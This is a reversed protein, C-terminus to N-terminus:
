PESPHSYLPPENGAAETPREWQTKKSGKKYYYTRGDETTKQRWGDPLPANLAADEYGPAPTTPREWQTAKSGRMYYYTRGDPTTKQKWGAPLAAPYSVTVPTACSSAVLPPLKQGRPSAIATPPNHLPALSPLAAAEPRVTPDHVSPSMTKPQPLPTLLETFGTATAPPALQQEEPQEGPHEEGFDVRRRGGSATMETEGEETSLHGYPQPQVANKKRIGRLPLARRPLVGEPQAKAKRKPISTSTGVAALRKRRIRCFIYLFLVTGGVVGAIIGGVPVSTADPPPPPMAPALLVMTVVAPETLELTLGSLLSSAAIVAALFTPADNVAIVVESARAMVSHDELSVTVAAVSADSPDSTARVYREPVSLASGVSSALAELELDTWEEASTQLMRLSPLVTQHVSARELLRRGSSAAKRIKFSIVEIAGPVAPPPPPSPPASPLPPSPSPSPPPPSPSPPPPSPSAPLPPSEEGSGSGAELDGSADEDPDDWACFPGQQCWIGDDPCPTSECTSQDPTGACIDPHGVCRPGSQGSGAEGSGSAAEESSDGGVKGLGSAAAGGSSAEGSGSAAEGSGSTVEDGSGSAV